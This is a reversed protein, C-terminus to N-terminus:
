FIIFVKFLLNYDRENKIEECYSPMSYFQLMLLMFLLFISVIKM